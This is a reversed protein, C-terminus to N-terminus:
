YDNKLFKSSLENTFFQSFQNVNPLTLALFLTAKGSVAYNDYYQSFLTTTRKIMMTLLM